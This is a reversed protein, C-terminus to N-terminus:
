KWRRGDSKHSASGGRRALRRCRGVAVLRPVRREVVKVRRGRRGTRPWHRCAGCWGLLRRRSALWLVQSAMASTGWWPRATGATDADHGCIRVAPRPMQCRTGWPRPWGLPQRSSCHASPSILAMRCGPNGRRWRRTLTAPAGRTGPQAHRGLDALRGFVARQGPALRLLPLVNRRTASDIESALAGYLAM